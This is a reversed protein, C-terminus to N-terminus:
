VAQTALESIYTFFEDDFGYHCGNAESESPVRRSTANSGHLFSVIIGEPPIEATKHVRGTIFAEGEAISVTDPFSREEWFSRKFCLSAESIREAPSMDLPPVNMASIYRGCDYMPLTSCYVCEAGTAKLWAVRGSISGAPYHDDDDMIVFVSATNSAENCAKNRKAGIALPKALSLYKIAIHPNKSQFKMIDADVRGGGIFDGDDVVIWSLKDKPYDSLLINRAMNHFWRPRNRTITVVAVNPLDDIPLPRPPVTLEISTLTKSAAALIAKWGTRFEKIRSTALQRLDTRLRKADGDTVALLSRVGALVAETTCISISDRYTSSSSTVDIKGVTGLLGGYLEDFIPLGTWLPLAGLAVAEAFTYGFGEAASAVIHYSHAAQAQVRETDTAFSSRLTIGSEKSVFPRLEDLVKDTGVVTVPPLDKNWAAVVVKAASLKNSSAGVLYLFSQKPDTCKVVSVEPAARWHLVRVKKADLEPFLSRAHESKFVIVDAQIFVWDWATAPWWEPNVVVINVKAWNWAARCPVELHIQVDVPQPKRPGGYFSMPDLHDVSAIRVSGGAHAERCVQEILRADVALGLAPLTTGGSRSSGSLVVVRLGARNM